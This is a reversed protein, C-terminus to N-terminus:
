TVLIGVSQLGDMPGPIYHRKLIKETPHEQVDPLVRYAEVHCPICHVPSLGPRPTSGM